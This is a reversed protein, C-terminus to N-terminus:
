YASRGFKTDSVACQGTKSSSISDAQTRAPLSLTRKLPATRHLPSASCGTPHRVSEDICESDGFFAHGISGFFLVLGITTFAM